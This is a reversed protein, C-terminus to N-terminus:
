GTEEGTTEGGEEALRPLAPWLEPPLKPVPWRPRTALVAGILAVLLLISILEFPLLYRTLLLEGATEISGFSDDVLPASRGVIPSTRLLVVGALTFGIVVGVFGAIASRARRKPFPGEVGINLLMLVFLFLVMVAGAYVMIQIVALFSASLQVYLVALALMVVILSLASKIPNRNLIVAFGGILAVSAIIFFLVTDM